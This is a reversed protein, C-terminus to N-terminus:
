RIVTKIIADAVTRAHDRLEPVATAEWFNARLLPGVYFLGAANLNLHDDVVFGAGHSLKRALGRQLLSDILTDSLQLLSNQPGTCNIVLDYKQQMVADSGRAKTSVLLQKGAGQLALIRAAKPCILGSAIADRLAKAPAPAARHRHTDWYPALHRMFRQQEQASLACWLAPTIPRVAAIVDRWDGPAHAAIETRMARLMALITAPKSLRQDAMAQLAPPILAGQPAFHAGLVAVRHAQPLLGRRSIADIQITRSQPAQLLMAVDLMSLGTGLLLVRANDPLAQLAKSSTASWPDRLYAPHNFATAADADTLQALYPNQPQFNGLALVVKHAVLNAGDAFQLTFTTDANVSIDTVRGVHHLLQHPGNHQASDLVHELYDGYRSRPVFDHGDIPAASQTTNQATSQATSQKTSRLFQLFNDPQEPWISMRGAPVNLVHSSSETGYAVGRARKGSANILVIKLPPTGRQSLLRAAVAVGSFGAGVIAITTAIGPLPAASSSPSNLTPMM